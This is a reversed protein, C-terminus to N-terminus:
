PLIFHSDVPFDMKRLHSEAFYKADSHPRRPRNKRNMGGPIRHPGRRVPAFRLISVSNGFLRANQFYGSLWKAPPRPGLVGCPM